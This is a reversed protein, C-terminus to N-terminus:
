QMIFQSKGLNSSAEAAPVSGGGLSFQTPEPRGGGFESAKLQYIQTAKDIHERRYGEQLYLEDDYKMFELLMDAQSLNVGQGGESAQGATLMRMIVQNMYSQKQDIMEQAKERTLTEPLQEFKKDVFEEDVQKKIADTKSIYEEDMKYKEYAMEYEKTIINFYDFVIDKIEVSLMTMLESRKLICDQYAKKDGAKLLEIRQQFSNEKAIEKAITQYTAMLKFLVVMFEQTYIYDDGKPGNFPIQRLEKILEKKLVVLDDEQSGSSLFTKHVIYYVLSSALGGALGVMASVKLINSDSQHAQQQTARMLQQSFSM